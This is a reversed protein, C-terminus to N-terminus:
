HALENVAKHILACFTDIEEMTTEHSFSIRLASDQRNDPINLSALVGNLGLQLVSAMAQMLIAPAGVAYIDKIVAKEFKFGKFKIHIPHKKAFLVSM